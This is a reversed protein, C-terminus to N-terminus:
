RPNAMFFRGIVGSASVDQNSDGIVIFPSGPWNHDMGDFRYHVFSRSCNQFEFMTATTNDSPDIDEIPTEVPETACGNRAVMAAQFDPGSLQSVIPGPEGEWPFQNDQNGIMWIAHVPPSPCNEFHWDWAIGGILGIGAIESGLECGLKFTMLSGQSFGSIYIRNNDVNMDSRMQELVARFYKVDDIGLEGAQNCETCAFAWEGSSWSQPYVAVFGLTDAAENMGTLPQMNTPPNGHLVMVVPVPASLNVTTPVYLLFTRRLGDVGLDRTYTGPSDIINPDTIIGGGDDDGCSALVAVLALPAWGISLIRM